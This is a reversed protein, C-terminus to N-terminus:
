NSGSLHIGTFDFSLRNGSIFIVTLVILSYYHNFKGLFTTIVPTGIAYILGFVTVLVGVKSVPVSLDSAIDSLIGVIIFESSGLIFSLLVLILTHIKYHKM